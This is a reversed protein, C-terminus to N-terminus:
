SLQKFVHNCLDDGEWREQPSKETGTRIQTEKGQINTVPKCTLAM